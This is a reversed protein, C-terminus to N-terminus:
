GAPGYQEARELRAGLYDDFLDMSRLFVAQVDEVRGLETAYREVLALAEEAHGVDAEYGERLFARAAAPISEDDLIAPDFYHVTAGFPALDRHAILELAHMAAMAAVWPERAAIDDWEAIARATAPLPPTARLVDRPVGVSEGMRLLLEYHSPHDDGAGSFETTLNELEYRAVDDRDSRALVYGCSRVWQRLFHQHEVAYGALTAPTPHQLAVVFPHPRAGFFRAVFRGRIWAALGDPPIAYLAGLAATLEARDMRRRSISQNLWRVHAPDSAASAALLHDAVAGLDAPGFGMRCVACRTM